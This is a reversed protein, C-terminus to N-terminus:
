QHADDSLKVSVLRGNEFLLAAVVNFSEPSELFDVSRQVDSNLFGLVYIGSVYDHLKESVSSSHESDKALDQLAPPPSITRKYYLPKLIYGPVSSPDQAAERSFYTGFDDQFSGFTTEGAVYQRLKELGESDAIRHPDGGENGDRDKSALVEYSGAIWEGDARLYQRSGIACITSEAWEVSFHQSYKRSNSPANTLVIAGASCEVRKGDVAARAYFSIGGEEFLLRPETIEYAVGVSNALERLAAEEEHSLIGDILEGKVALWMSIDRMVFLEKGNRKVAVSKKDNKNGTTFEVRVPNEPPAAIPLASEHSVVYQIGYAFDNLIQEAEERSVDSLGLGPLLLALGGILRIISVIEIERWRNRSAIRVRTFSGHAAM